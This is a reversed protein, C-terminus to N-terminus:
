TQGDHRRSRWLYRRLFLGAGAAAALLHSVPLEPVPPPAPPHDADDDMLPPVLIAAAGGIAPVLASAGAAAPPVIPGVETVPWGVGPSTWVEPVEALLEPSLPSTADYPLSARLSPPEELPALSPVVPTEAGPPKPPSVTPPSPPGKPAVRTAKEPEVHLVPEEPPAPRTEVGPPLVPLLANGCRARLVLAGSKSHYFAQEGERVTVPQNTWYLQDGDRLLSHMQTDRPVQAVYLHDLLGPDGLRRSMSELSGRVVPDRQVHWRLELASYAGGAIVSMPYVPRILTQIAHSYSHGDPLAILTSFGPLNQQNPCGSLLVGIAALLLLVLRAGPDTASGLVHLLAGSRGVVSKLKEWDPFFRPM